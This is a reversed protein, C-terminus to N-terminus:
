ASVGGRLVERISFDAEWLPKRTVQGRRPGLQGISVWTAGHKQQLKRLWSTSVFKVGPHRDWGAGPVYFAIIVPHAGFASYPEDPHYRDVYQRMVEPVQAHSM